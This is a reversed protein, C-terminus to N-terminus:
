SDNKAFACINRQTCLSLGAQRGLWVLLKLVTQPILPSFMIKFDICYTVEPLALGAGVFVGPLESM